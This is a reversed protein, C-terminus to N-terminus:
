NDNKRKIQSYQSAQQIKTGQGSVSGADKATFTCPVLWQVALSNRNHNKKTQLNINQEYWIKRQYNEIM